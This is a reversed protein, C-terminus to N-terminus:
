HRRRVNLNTIKVLNTKTNIVLEGVTTTDPHQPDRITVDGEPGSSCTLRQNLPDYVAQACHITASETEVRVAGAATLRSIELTQTDDAAAANAAANAAPQFEATVTDADLHMPNPRDGDDWHVIRVGGNIVALRKGQDYSFQNDWQFATRGRGGAPSPPQAQDAPQTAAPRHDEILMRGPIPVDLRRAQVDYNIRESFIDMRRLLKGAADSLSSEVQAKDILSVTQVQKGRMFDFDGALADAPRSTPAAADADGADAAPVDSAGDQAHAPADILTLLVRQGHALDVSGDASQSQCKVDGTIRVENANGDLSAGQTWSVKFPRPKQDAQSPQQTTSLTGPGDASSLRQHGSLHIEPATLTSDKDIAIAPQGRLTVRAHGEVMVIELSDGSASTSDKGLVRVTDTALLKELQVDEEGAGGGSGRGAPPERAPPTPSLAIQLHQASLNDQDQTAQVDGDALITRAFLRGAPTKATLLQLKQAAVSRTRKDSERVVCVADGNAVVQQLRPHNASDAWPEFTLDLDDALLHFRPHDVAVHGALDAAQIMMQGQQAGALHVSAGKEWTAHLTAQPDDPDPLAATGAGEVVAVNQTRSYRMARGTITTVGDPRKQKVELPNRDDGILRASSDATQYVLEACQADTTAASNATADAAAASALLQHLHVPTGVLHVISQGAALPGGASADTPVMRMKGDWCVIIPQPQPQTSPAAAAPSPVSPASTPSPAPTPPPPKPAAGSGQGRPVFDVEMKQASVLQQNGQMVRVNDLFTALYRHRPQPESAAPATDAVAVARDAGPAPPSPPSSPVGPGQVAPAQSAGSISFQSADYITLSTAHAIELSKLRKDVDNWYMVMGSGDFAYDKARITVPVQDAHIVHGAADTYEQTFLRFTDNDFQANAMTLTLDVNSKAQDNESAFLTVTVNRFTGYRPPENPVGAFANRDSGPAMRVVGDVGEIHVIQGDSLFVEIVPRDVHVTGDPQNDYFEAKFRYTRRGTERDYQTAWVGKGPGVFVGEKITGASEQTAPRSGSEATVGVKPQFHLYVVFGAVLAALTLFILLVKRM